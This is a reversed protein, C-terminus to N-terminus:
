RAGTITIPPAAMTPSHMRQPLTAIWDSFSFRYGLFEVVYDDGSDYNGAAEVAAAYGSPM